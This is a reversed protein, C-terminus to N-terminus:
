GTLKLEEKIQTFFKNHGWLQTTLKTNLSLISLSNLFRFLLSSLAGVDIVLRSERYCGWLARPNTSHNNMSRAPCSTSLTGRIQDARFSLTKVLVQKGLASLHSREKESRKHWCLHKIAAKLSLGNHREGEQRQKKTSNETELNWILPSMQNMGPFQTSGQPKTEKRPVFQSMHGNKRLSCCGEWPAADKSEWVSKHDWRNSSQISVCSWVPSPFRHRSLLTNQTKVKGRGNQTM